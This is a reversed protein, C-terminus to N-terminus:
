KTSETLYFVDISEQKTRHKKTTKGCPTESSLSLPYPAPYFILLLRADISRALSTKFISACLM